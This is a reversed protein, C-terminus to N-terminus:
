LSVWPYLSTFDVYKADGEHFLKVANTRGGFFADRPVLRDKMQHTELFSKLEPDEKKLRSFTHEWMEIVTFGQARLRDTNQETQRRLSGMTVQKLPHNLDSDYCTSCGHYFCGQFIFFLYIFMKM